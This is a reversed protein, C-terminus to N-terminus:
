RVRLIRLSLYCSVVLEEAKMYKVLGSVVTRPEAEGIDVKEVFLSDANEHKNVEMIFGVRINLKGILEVEAFTPPEASEKQQTKAPKEKKLVGTKGPILEEGITIPCPEDKTRSPISSSSVTTALPADLNLNIHPLYDSQLGHSNQILDFWRSVNCYRFRETDSM